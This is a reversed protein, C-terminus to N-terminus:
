TRSCCTPTNTCAALVNLYTRNQLECQLLMRSVDNAIAATEAGNLAVIPLSPELQWAFNFWLTPVHFLVVNNWPIPQGRVDNRVMTDYDDDDGHGM